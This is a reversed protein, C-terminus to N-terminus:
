LIIILYNILIIQFKLIDIFCDKKENKKFSFSLLLPFLDLAILYM